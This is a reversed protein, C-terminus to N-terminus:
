DSQRQRRKQSISALFAAEAHFDEIQTFHKASSAVRLYALEREGLGMLRDLASGDTADRLIDMTTLALQGSSVTRQGRLRREVTDVLTKVLAKNDREAPAVSVPRKRVAYKISDELKAREYPHTEGNRKVVFAPSDGVQTAKDFGAGSALWDAFSSADTFKKNSSEFLLAYRIRTARYRTKAQLVEMVAYGIQKTTVRTTDSFEEGDARPFFLLERSFLEAIVQDVLEQLEAVPISRVRAKKISDYLKEREFPEQTKGDRKVVHINGVDYGESTIFKHGCDKCRRTHRTGRTDTVVNNDEKCSPCKV